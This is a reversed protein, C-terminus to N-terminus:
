QVGVLLEDPPALDIRDLLARIGDAQERTVQCPLCTM